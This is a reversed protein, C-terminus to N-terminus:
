AGTQGTGHQLLGAGSRVAGPYTSTGASSGASSLRGAQTVPQRGTHEELCFTMLHRNCWCTKKEYCLGSVDATWPFKWRQAIICSFSKKLETSAASILADSFFVKRLTHPAHVPLSDLMVESSSCLGRTFGVLSDLWVECM